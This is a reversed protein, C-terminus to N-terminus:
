DKMYILFGKTDPNYTGARYHKQFLCYLRRHIVGDHISGFNKSIQGTHYWGESEMKAIHENQEEVSDYVFEQIASEGIQVASM